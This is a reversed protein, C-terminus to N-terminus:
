YDLLDELRVEEGAECAAVELLREYIPPPRRARRESPPRRGVQRSIEALAVTAVLRYHYTFKDTPLDLHAFQIEDGLRTWPERTLCVCSEDPVVVLQRAGRALNARHLPFGTHSKTIVTVNPFGYKAAASCPILRISNRGRRAAGRGESRTIRDCGFWLEERDEVLAREWGFAAASRIASGLEIHDGAGLLLLEPRRSSPDRREQMRGLKGRTLYHLAVASAAAVNLCNITRSIMPIEVTHSAIKRFRGSLGRRENGVAVAFDRTPRFDYVQSAGALNDCAIISAHTSLLKEPTTAVFGVRAGAGLEMRDALASTDHFLCAAQFMEAAHLMTLANRPNEIGDGVLTAAARMM